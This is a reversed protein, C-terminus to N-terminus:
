EVRNRHMAVAMGKAAWEEGEPFPRSLRMLWGYWTPTFIIPKNRTVGRLIVRAAAQPPQGIKRPAQVEERSMMMVKMNDWFPTKLAGPCITSVKIGLAAAEARLAQTFGVVGFKSACYIAGGPQYTLGALSATNVIHGSGERLMAHYAAHTGYVVGNLNIRLIQELDEIECDRLQGTLALGANNFMYDVSGRQEVCREVLRKVGDADAVDVHAAEAHGGGRRIEEAVSECQEADLDALCVWTGQRSLEEALARGLGSAAGTVIATRGSYPNSQLQLAGAYIWLVGVAIAGNLLFASLHSTSADGSFGYMLGGLVASAGTM